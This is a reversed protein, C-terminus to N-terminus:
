GRSFFFPPPCFTALLSTTPGQPEAGTPGLAAGHVPLAAPSLMTGWQESGARHWSGYLCCSFIVGWPINQGKEKGNEWKRNSFFRRSGLRGSEELWLKNMPQERRKLILHQCLLSPATPSSPPHKGGERKGEKPSHQTGWSLASAGHSSQPLLFMAPGPTPNHEAKRTLQSHNWRQLGATPARLSGQSSTPIWCLEAGNGGTASSWATDGSNQVVRAWAGARCLWLASATPASSRCYPWDTLLAHPAPVGLSLQASALSSSPTADRFPSKWCPTIALPPESCLAPTISGPAVRHQDSSPALM